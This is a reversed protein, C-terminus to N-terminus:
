NLHVVSSSVPFPRLDGHNFAILSFSRDSQDQLIVVRVKTLFEDQIHLAADALVFIQVQDNNGSTKVARLIFILAMVTEELDIVRDILKFLATFEISQDDTESTHFVDIRFPDHATETGLEFM